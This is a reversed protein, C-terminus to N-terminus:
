YWCAGSQIAKSLMRSCALLSEMEYPSNREIVYTRCEELAPIVEDLLIREHELLIPESIGKPREGLLLHQDSSGDNTHIHAVTVLKGWDELAEGIYSTGRGASYEYALLHGYDLCIGIRRSATEGGHDELAERIRSVLSALVEIRGFAPERGSPGHNEVAIGVGSRVVEQVIGDDALEACAVEFASGSGGPPAHVVIWKSGLYDSRRLTLLLSRVFGATGPTSRDPHHIIAMTGTRCALSRLHELLDANALLDESEAGYQVAAMAGPGALEALDGALRCLFAAM